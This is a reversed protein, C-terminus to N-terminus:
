TAEGPMQIPSQSRPPPSVSRPASEYASSQPSSAAAGAPLVDEQALREPRADGEEVAPRKKRTMWVPKLAATAM